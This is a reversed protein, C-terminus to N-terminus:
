TQSSGLGLDLGFKVHLLAGMTCQVMDFNVRILLYHQGLPPCFVCIQGIKGNNPAGTGVGQSVLHLWIQWVVTSGHEISAHWM